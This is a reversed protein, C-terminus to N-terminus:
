CHYLIDLISMKCGTYLISQILFFSLSQYHMMLLFKFELHVTEIEYSDKSHIRLYGSWPTLDRFIGSKRSPKPNKSILRNENEPAFETMTVGSVYVV